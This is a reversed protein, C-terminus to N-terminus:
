STDRDAGALRSLFTPTDWRTRAERSSRHRLADSLVMWSLTGKMTSCAAVISAERIPTTSGSPGM